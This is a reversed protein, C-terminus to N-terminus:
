RDVPAFASTYRSFACRTLTQGRGDTPRSQSFIGLGDPTSTTTIVRLSFVTHISVAYSVHDYVYQLGAFASIEYDWLFSFVM